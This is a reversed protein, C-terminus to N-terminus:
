RGGEMMSRAMADADAMAVGWGGVKARTRESGQLGYRAVHAPPWYLAVMVLEGSEEVRELCWPFVRGLRTDPRGPSLRVLARELAVDGDPAIIGVGITYTPGRGPERHRVVVIDSM